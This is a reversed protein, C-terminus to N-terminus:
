LSERWKVNFQIEMIGLLYNWPTMVWFVVVQIKMATFTKFRVFKM